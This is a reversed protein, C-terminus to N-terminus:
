RTRPSPVEELLLPPWTIDNSTGHDAANQDAANRDTPSPAPSPAPWPPPFPSPPQYGPREPALDHVTTKNRVAHRHSNKAVTLIFSVAFYSLMGVLIGVGAPSTYLQEAARPGINKEVIGGLLPGALPTLTFSFVFGCLVRVCFERFTAPLLVACGMLAGVIGYLGYGNIRFLDLITTIRLFDQLDM